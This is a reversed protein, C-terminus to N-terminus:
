NEMHNRYAMVEANPWAVLNAVDLFSVFFKLEMTTVQCIIAIDIGKTNNNVHCYAPDIGKLSGLNMIMVNIAESQKM